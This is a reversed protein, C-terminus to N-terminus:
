SLYEAVIGAAKVCDERSVDLHAAARLSTKKGQSLRVGKTALESLIKPIDRNKGGLEILVINTEVSDLDVSAKKASKAVIKAFARANANDDRIRERNNRLAYLAGAAIIGAQRMGGGWIKRMRRAKVIHEKTGCIASGVPAGLGKSFCVSVTDFHQAYEKPSVGTAACANWLRAGDLHMLIGKSRAFESLEIIREIPYITGGARNHTNEIALVRSVPMYYAPERIAGDVDDVTLIGKSKAKIPNLQIRSLFSAATTEYNFIHADAEVIAEDGSQTQINLALQNTMCGSSCYLADEKGLLAAVETQLEHVMPDEDFVDDGVPAQAMYQRMAASPRTVTDSRLDIM